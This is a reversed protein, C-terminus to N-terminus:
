PAVEVRCMASAPVNLILKTGNIHSYFWFSQGPEIHDAGVSLVGNDYVPEYVRNTQNYVWAYDEVWAEVQAATLLDETVSANEIDIMATDWHFCVDSPISLLNWGQNLTYTVTGVVTSRAAFDPNFPAIKVWYGQQTDVDSTSEYAQTAANFLQVTAGGIGVDAFALDTEDTPVGMAFIEDGISLDLDYMQVDSSGGSSSIKIFYTGTSSINVAQTKEHKGIAWNDVNTVVTLGDSELVTIVLNEQASSDYESGLCSSDQPGTYYAGGVPTVTVNLIGAQAVNISYFDEESNKDLSVGQVSTTDDHNLTLAIAADKDNNTGNVDGYGKQVGRIDDHQPGDFATALFPEMLKTNNVPCVHGLGLGHGHEHAIVNRLRLEALVAGHTIPDFYDDNTDIIMDGNEPFYNYALIGADGDIDQGAIRIDARTGLEGKTNSINGVDAGDDYTVYVYTIGSVAAWDDFVSQFFPLWQAEGGPYLVDLRARLDSPGDGESQGGIITTGDPVISWTLTLGEGANASGGTSGDTATQDWRSSNKFTFNSRHREIKFAKTMAVTSAKDMEQQFHVPTGPAFCVMRPLSNAFDDVFAQQRPSLQPKDPISEPQSQAMWVVLILTSICILGFCYSRM